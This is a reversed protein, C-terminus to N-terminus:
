KKLPGLPSTPCGSSQVTVRINMIQWTDGSKILDFVDTGCHSYKGDLHMDYRAWFVAIRDNALLKPNWFRETIKPGTKMSPLFSSVLDVSSGLAGDPTDFVTTFKAGPKLINSMAETDAANIAKFFREVTAMAAAENTVGSDEALVPSHSALLGTVAAICFLKKM